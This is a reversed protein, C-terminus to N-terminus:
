RRDQPTLSTKTTLYYWVQQHSDIFNTPIGERWSIRSSVRPNALNRCMICVLKKLKKDDILKATGEASIGIVYKEDPTDEHIKIAVAVNPNQAIEQSHRRQPTSIWYFNFDDDSYYHITCTWPKNNVSTSLSMTRTTKLNDKILQKLDM